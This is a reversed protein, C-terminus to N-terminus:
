ATGASNSTVEPRSVISATSLPSTRMETPATRSYLYSSAALAVVAITAALIAYFISHFGYLALMAGGVAWSTLLYRFM